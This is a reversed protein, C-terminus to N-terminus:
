LERGSVILKGKFDYLRTNPKECVVVGHVASLKEESALLPFQSPVQKSKLNTEGDLNATKVYCVGNESKSYLLLLDCPFFSDRLVEM